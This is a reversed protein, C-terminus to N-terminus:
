IHRYITRVPAGIADGLADEENKTLPGRDYNMASVGFRAFGQPMEYTLDNLTAETGCCTIKRASLTFGPGVCYDASMWGTWDEGNVEQACTPCRVKEFNEGCDFFM